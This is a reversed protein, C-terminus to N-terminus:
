PHTLEDVRPGFDGIPGAPKPNLGLITRTLVSKGQGSPGVFGLIEGARIDLNLGKLINRDRFGVVLDRVRIIPAPGAETEPMAPAIMLVPESISRPSSCRSCDM